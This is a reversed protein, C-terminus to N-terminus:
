GVRRLLWEMPGSKWHQRWVASIVVLLLFFGVGALLSRSVTYACHWGLYHVFVAGILIHLVYMTFAMQGIPVLARVFPSDPWRAAAELAVAIVALATGTVTLVFFPLPPMSGTELWDSLVYENLGAGIPHTLLYKLLLRGTVEIGVALGVGWFFMRRRVAARSVDLRGLAMGFVLIGAWPIVPRFGDFFLNRFAGKITWLHSYVTMSADWRAYYDVFLSLAPFAMVLGAAVAVVWRTRLPAIFGALIFTVGFLRLVDGPWILQDLFGIALLFIGRRVMIWRREATTYRRGLLTVGVGALMVFVATARGDMFQLVSLGWGEPMRPGLVQTCHDVLMGLIALARAVDYGHIRSTAPRVIVVPSLEISERGALATM